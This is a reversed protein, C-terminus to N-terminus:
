KYTQNRIEVLLQRIDLLVELEKSEFDGVTRTIDLQIEKRDRM